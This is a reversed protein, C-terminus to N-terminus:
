RLALCVGATLRDLDEGDDGGLLAMLVVAHGTMRRLMDAEDAGAPPATLCTALVPVGPEAFARVRTVGGGLRGADLMIEAIAPSSGMRTGTRAPRILDAAHVLGARKSPPHEKVSPERSLVASSEHSLDGPTGRRLVYADAKPAGRGAAGPGSGGVLMDLLASKATGSPGALVLRIRDCSMASRLESLARDPTRTGRAVLDAIVNWATVDGPLHVIRM